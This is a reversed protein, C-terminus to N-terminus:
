DEVTTFGDGYGEFQYLKPKEKCRPCLKNRVSSSRMWVILNFREGDGVDLAGHTHSGRHIIGRGIKHNCIYIKPSAGVPVQSSEAFFHSSAFIHVSVPKKKISVQNDVFYLEGDTFEKGLSVNLTVEANDYHSSLGLDKNTKKDACYNVVFARQSDLGRDVCDIYLIKAIPQLYDSRLPNTFSKDFGLENLLLQM